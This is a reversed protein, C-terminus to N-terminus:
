EPAPGPDEAPLPALLEPGNNRVNNVRESVPYAELDAAPTRGVLALAEAGDVLGPDLWRGWSERPVLLPMRDHIRDLPAVAETTLVTCTVLWADPDDALRQPDRWFEYLGAMALPRGDRRHIYFPQKRPKGAATLRGTEAYWEYYGDAPLLCRRKAVAQRFAPKAAATEVRANVLRSGLSRDKAWAPVLGWTLLRLQRVPPAPEEPAATEPGEAARPARTLVAPV